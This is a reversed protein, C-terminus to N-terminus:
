RPAGGTSLRLSARFAPGDCDLISGGALALSTIAMAALGPSKRLQRLAFRLNFM